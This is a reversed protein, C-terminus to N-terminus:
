TRAARTQAQTSPASDPSVAIFRAVREVEVDLTHERALELGRTALRRRLSEDETISTLSRVLAAANDPGVLLGAGGHDLAAGVGGVDTAVIPLGTALAEILVQPVGETRSVHVFAHATRYLGLLQPGFAVYGRLEVCQGLDLESARRRVAEEMPGRGVWTLSYRGPREQELKHLADLLLMPNKEKDIRGVTLLRVTKSWDREPPAPAVDATRILSVTMTHLASREGGYHGAIETGVVTIRLRRALLRYLADMAWIPGLLPTWARSPLRSRYYGLTNQRVGLVTRKRRIAALLVLVLAFPHPGFVWITDVHRLGRWMSIVTGPAARLVDGLHFLDQYAPLEVLRVGPPIVYDAPPGSHVTRGFLACSEFRAGVECAFLLFARDVTISEADVRYVDDVYIGLRERSL